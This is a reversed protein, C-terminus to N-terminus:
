LHVAFLFAIVTTVLGWVFISYSYKLLRFKLDLVKGLYYLDRLMNDYVLDPHKLIYNAYEEYKGLDVQVYNGFFFLNRKAEDLSSDANLLSTIHPRAALAAFVLSTVATLMFIVGTVMAAYDEATVTKFFIIILGILISNLRVMINSKRDALASLSIHTRYSNRFYTQVARNIDRKKPKKGNKEKPPPVEGEGGLSNPLDTNKLLDQM